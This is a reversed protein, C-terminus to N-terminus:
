LQVSMLRLLLADVRLGAQQSWGHSAALPPTTTFAHPMHCTAPWLIKQGKSAPVCLFKRTWWIRSCIVAVLFRRWPTPRIADFQSSSNEIRFRAKSAIHKMEHRWLKGKASSDSVQELLRQWASSTPTHWKDNTHKCYCSFSHMATHFIQPSAKLRGILNLPQHTPHHLPGVLFKCGVGRKNWANSQMHPKSISTFQSGIYWIM